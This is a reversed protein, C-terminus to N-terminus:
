NSCLGQGSIGLAERDRKRMELREGELGIRCKDISLFIYIDSCINTEKTHFFCIIRGGVRSLHIKM